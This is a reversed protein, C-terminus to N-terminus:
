IKYIKDLLLKEKFSDNIIDNIDFILDNMLNTKIFQSVISKNKKFTILDRQQTMPAFLNFLLIEKCLNKTYIAKRKREEEDKYKEKNNELYRGCVIIEDININKDKFLLFITIKDIYLSLENTSENKIIEKLNILLNSLEKNKFKEDINTNLIIKDNNMKFDSKNSRIYIDSKNTYKNKDTFAKYKYNFLNEAIKEIEKKNINM